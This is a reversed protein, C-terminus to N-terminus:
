FMSAANNVPFALIATNFGFTVLSQLMVLWRMPATVVSVGATQSALAITVSFYLFDGYEPKFGADAQPFQLGSGHPSQYFRSAYTLAFEAPLLIWSGVLTSLAFLM